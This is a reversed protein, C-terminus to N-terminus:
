LWMLYNCALVTNMTMCECRIVPTLRGAVNRLPHLQNAQNKSQQHNLFIIFLNENHKVGLKLIKYFLQM